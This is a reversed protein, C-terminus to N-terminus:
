SHLKLMWKTFKGTTSQQWRVSYESLSMDHLQHSPKRMTSAINTPLGKAVLRAKHHIPNGEADHKVEYVWKNKVVNGKAQQRPVLKWTQKKILSNYEDRMANEWDFWDDAKMAQKFTTPEVLKTHVMAKRRICGSDTVDESANDQQYRPNPKRSRSSQRLAQSSISEKSKSKKAKSQSTQTRQQQMEKRYEPMSGLLGVAVENESKDSVDETNQEPMITIDGEEDSNFSGPIKRTNDLHPKFKKYKSKDTTKMIQKITKFAKESMNEFDYNGDLYKKNIYAQDAEEDETNDYESPTQPRSDENIESRPSKPTQHNSSHLTLKRSKTPSPTQEQEESEEVSCLLAETLIDGVDRESPNLPTDQIPVNKNPTTPKVPSQLQAIIKKIIGTRDNDELSPIIINHVQHKAAPM